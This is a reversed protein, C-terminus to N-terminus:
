VEIVTHFFRFEPFKKTINKSFEATVKNKVIKVIKAFDVFIKTLFLSFRFLVVSKPRSNM